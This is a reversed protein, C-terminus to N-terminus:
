GTRKAGSMGAMSVCGSARRTSTAPWRVSACGCPACHRLCSPASLRAVIRRRSRRQSRRRHDHHQCRRRERASRQLKAASLLVVDSAEGSHAIGIPATPDGAVTVQQRQHYLHPRRSRLLFILLLDSQDLARHRAEDELLDTGTERTTGPAGSRKMTAAGTTSRAANAASRWPPRASARAKPSCNYSSRRDKPHAFHAVTCARWGVGPRGERQRELMAEHEWTAVGALIALMRKGTAKRTDLQEGGLSLVVLGIGRKSLDAEIAVLAAVSHALRDPKTVVLADGQRLYDLCRKLAGRQGISSVQERFVKEAGAARLDRTQAVLGDAPDAPSTRAYGITRSAKLVNRSRM